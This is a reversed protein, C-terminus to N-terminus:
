NDGDQGWPKKCQPRRTTTLDTSLFATALFTTRLVATRTESRTAQRATQGAPTGSILPQWISGPSSAPNTNKGRRHTLTRPRLRLLLGEGVLPALHPRPSPHLQVQRAHM